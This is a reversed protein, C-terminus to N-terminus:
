LIAFGQTNKGALHKSDLTGAYIYATTVLDDHDGKPASFFVAGSRRVRKEYMKLQRLTESSHITIKEGDLLLQLKDLMDPKSSVTTRIGAERRAKRMKDTYYFSYFNKARLCAQLASSMNLEPCVVARNYIKSLGAIMDAMDEVMIGRIYLTAVQENNRTNWVSAAFFDSEDSNSGIPDCTIMYKEGAFPSKYIKIPSEEVPKLEPKDTLTDTVLQYPKDPLINKDQKKLSEETFCRKNEGIALVEDLTTPFEKHMNTESMTASMRHYWEIADAWREKPFGDKTMAPMIVKQDYETLEIDDLNYGYPEEPYSSYWPVFIVEYEDPHELATIIKEKFYPGMKDDFTSAYITLSFGHPPMMPAVVAEVEEPHRYSGLEDMVCIHFDSGRLSNAGASALEYFNHRRVGLLNDYNLVVSATASDKYITPMLDPHTNGTLSICGNIRCWFMSSSVSVCHVKGSYPVERKKLKQTTVTNRKAPFSVRFLDKRKPNKSKQKTVMSCVGSMRAFTNVWTAQYESVTYYESYGTPEVHGDWQELESLIVERQHNNAQWIWEFPLRKYNPLGSGALIRIKHQGANKGHSVVGDSYRIGLRDLIDKLRYIKRDKAFNFGISDCSTDYYGDAQIAIALRLDDDSLDIGEGDLVTTVVFDHGHSVPIGEWAERIKIKKGQRFVMRHGKTSLHYYSHGKSYEVLGENNDYHVVEKPIEFWSKEGDGVLIEEGKYDDFKVWGNRTMVEADGRLCGTIIDKVKTNYLKTASDGTPFLHLVSLNDCGEVYSLIFNIFAVTGTTAGVRRGKLYIVSRSRDLRTKPDIMPLLKEFVKRQFPNLKMPVLRRRKDVIQQFHSTFYGFDCDGIIKILDDRTPEPVDLEFTSQLPKSM